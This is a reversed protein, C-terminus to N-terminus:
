PKECKQRQWKLATEPSEPPKGHERAYNDVANRAAAKQWKKDSMQPIDVLPVVAGTKSKIYGDVPYYRSGAEYSERVRETTCTCKEGPDLNAGCKPCTTYYSMAKAGKMSPMPCVKSM